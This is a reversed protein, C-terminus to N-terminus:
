SLDSWEKTVANLKAALDGITSRTLMDGGCWKNGYVEVDGACEIIEELAASIRDAIRSAQPAALSYLRERAEILLPLSALSCTEIPYTAM